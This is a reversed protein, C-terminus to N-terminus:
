RPNIPRWVNEVSGIMLQYNTPLKTENPKEPLNSQLRSIDISFLLYMFFFSEAVVHNVSENQCRTVDLVCRCLPQSNPYM